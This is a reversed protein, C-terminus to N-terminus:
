EEIEERDNWYEVAEQETDAMPGRAGCDPCYAFWYERRYHECFTAYDTATGIEDSTCFPCRAFKTASM